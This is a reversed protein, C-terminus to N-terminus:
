PTSDIAAVDPICPKGLRANEDMARGPAQWSELNKAYVKGTKFNYVVWGNGPIRDFRVPFEIGFSHGAHGKLSIKYKSM